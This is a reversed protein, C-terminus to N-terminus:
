SHEERLLDEQNNEIIEILDASFGVMEVEDKIVDENLNFRRFEELLFVIRMKHTLLAIQVSILGKREFEAKM